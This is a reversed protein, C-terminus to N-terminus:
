EADEPDVDLGKIMVLKGDPTESGESTDGALTIYLDGDPHFALATAKKLKAIEVTKCRNADETGVIKYLGGNDTDQWNFDTAFLRGHKPGYALGTVDHMGTKFNDLMKGEESYFTLLSDGAINIEGMQGVTIYGEPSITIAVPADVKTAEKTAIKRTFKNLQTGELTALSIWGKEDDGNCTVYIGQTGKALGYFNGEGVVDDTAPLTKPEGHTKDVKIPDTGAAPVKFVYLEEEGDPKGGGGVVLTDKDLFCLGLPGVDYIPGKGYFDKPFDVIVPEIKEDVIRIVRLAGSDAVFVHGTEPQIAVGSPNNLGEVVTKVEVDQANGTVPGTGFAVVAMLFAWCFTKMIIEEVIDQQRISSRYQFRSNHDTERHLEVRLSPNQPGRISSNM